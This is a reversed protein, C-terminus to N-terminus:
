FVLFSVSASDPFLRLKPLTRVDPIYASPNFPWSVRFAGHEARYQARIVPTLM